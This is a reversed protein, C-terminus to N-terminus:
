LFQPVSHNAYKEGKYAWAAGIPSLMMVSILGVIVTRRAIKKSEQM